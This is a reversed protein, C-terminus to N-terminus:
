QLVEADDCRMFSLLADGISAYLEEELGMAKLINRIYSSAGALKLDGGDCQFEIIRDAIRRVLKYDLHKLKEFGLVVNCQSCRSFSDLVRELDDVNYRSLEGVVDVVNVDHYKHIEIM